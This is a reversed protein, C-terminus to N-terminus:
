VRTHHIPIPTDIKEVNICIGIFSGDRYTYDKCKSTNVENVCDFPPNVESITIKEKMIPFCINFPYGSKIIEKKQRYVYM